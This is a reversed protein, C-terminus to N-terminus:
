DITEKIILPLNNVLYEKIPSLYKILSEKIQSININGM